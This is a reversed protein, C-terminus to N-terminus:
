IRALFATMYSDWAEDISKDLSFTKLSTGTTCYLRGEEFRVNLFLGNVNSSQIIQATQDASMMFVVKFRLPVRQGKIIEYCLPKIDKWAVAGDAAEQDEAEDGLFERNIHGDISINVLTSFSAETVRFDDFTDGVFLASTFKRINDIEINKM